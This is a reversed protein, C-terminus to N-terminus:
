EDREDFYNFILVVTLPLLLLAMLYEKDLLLLFEFIAAIISNVLFFYRM